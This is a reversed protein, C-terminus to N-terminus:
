YVQGDKAKDIKNMKHAHTRAHTHANTHTQRRDAHVGM